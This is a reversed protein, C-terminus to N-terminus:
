FARYYRLPHLLAEWLTIPRAEHDPCLAVGHHLFIPTTTRHCQSCDLASEKPPVIAVSAMAWDGQHLGVEPLDRLAVVVEDHFDPNHDPDGPTLRETAPTSFPRKM